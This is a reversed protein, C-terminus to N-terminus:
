GELQQSRPPKHLLLLSLTVTARGTISACRLVREQECVATANPLARVVVWWRGGRVCACGAGERGAVGNRAKVLEQLLGPRGGRLRSLLAPAGRAPPFPCPRDERGSWRQAAAGHQLVMRPITVSVM